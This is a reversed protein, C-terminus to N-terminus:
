YTSSRCLCRKSTRGQTFDDMPGAMLFMSRASRLTVSTMLQLSLSVGFLDNASEDTRTRLDVGLELTVKFVLAEAKHTLVHLALPHFDDLEVTVSM